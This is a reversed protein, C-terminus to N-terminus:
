ESNGTGSPSQIIFGPIDLPITLSSISLSIFLFLPLSLYSLGVALVVWHSTQLALLHDEWRTCARMYISISSLYSRNLEEPQTPKQIMHFSLIPLFGFM